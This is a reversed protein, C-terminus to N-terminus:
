GAPDNIQLGVHGFVLLHEAVDTKKASQRFNPRAKAASQELLTTVHGVAFRLNGRFEGLNGGLQLQLSGAMRRFGHRDHETVVGKDHRQVFSEGVGFSGQSL